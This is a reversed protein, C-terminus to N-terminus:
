AGFGYHGEMWAYMLPHAHERGHNQIFDKSGHRGADVIVRILQPIKAIVPLLLERNEEHYQHTRVNLLLWLLGARGYLIEDGGMRHDGHPVIWSNQLALDTADRLCNILEASIKPTEGAGWGNKAVTAFIQLSAAALPSFSGAPSLRSPILPMDPLGSPVRKLAYELFESPNSNQGFLVPSQYNLRLFALAVGVFGTLFLRM